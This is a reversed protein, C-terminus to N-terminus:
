ICRDPPPSSIQWLYKRRRYVLSSTKIAHSSQMIFKTPSWFSYCPNGFSLSSPPHDYCIAYLMSLSVIAGSVYMLLLNCTRSQYAYLIITRKNCVPPFALKRAKKLMHGFSRRTHSLLTIMNQRTFHM